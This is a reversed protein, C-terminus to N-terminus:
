GKKLLFLGREGGACRQWSVTSGSMLRTLTAMLTRRANSSPHLNM